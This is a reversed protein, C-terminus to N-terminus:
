QRFGQDPKMAAARGRAAVRPRTGQRLALTSELVLRSLCDGLADFAKAQDSLRRNRVYVRRVRSEIIHNLCEDIVDGSVGLEAMLTAASRRLDHPTWRGGPLVLARTEKSRNKLRLDPPRQRDALQKGFSKVNVPGTGAVNPFVWPQIEDTLPSVERLELLSEFQTVAFDSLHVTHERQNKTELLHWKRASLDVFGLKVGAQEGQQALDDGDSACDAWAAGMLEGARVGTALTIWLAARSRRPLGSRSIADPLLKLEEMSLVRDREVSAGGVDRKAVSDLPNRQVLDRALAFRFMQKLDALLVNATRLKGEAKAADLVALLDARRVDEVALAGLKPFVRRDFQAQTFAGGDKRGARKGDARIRPQLDTAAWQEFLTRLSIRRDEEARAAEQAAHEAKISKAREARPDLGRSRLEWLRKAEARADALSKHPFGGSPDDPFMLHWQQTGVNPDTLRLYWRASAERKRLYLGGGDHLPAKTGVDEVYRKVAIATLRHVKATRAM